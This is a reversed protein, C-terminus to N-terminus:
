RPPLVLPTPKAPTKADKSALPKLLDDLSRTMNAYKFAPVAFVWGDFRKQLEATEHRLKELKAAADKDKDTSALPPEPKAPTAPAAAPQSSEAAAAAPAAPRQAAAFDAVKSTYAAIEAAQLHEIGIKAAGEDLSASFQAYDKGGNEWVKGSVVIGDFTTYRVTRADAPAPMEAAPKVDDFKLQALVAAIANAAFESSLERGKPLDAVLFNSDKEANKYAKLTKGDHTIEASAVRTSPIDVLDRKLWDGTNKDVSITGKALWSQPEDARRVFTGEGAQANPRGIILKYPKPAGEIEVRVGYADKASVDEVGLKKHLEPKATKAELLQADALKLLFERIKAADAGFGAREAVNWGADGRVLTAITKDEAGVLKVSKVENLHDKLGPALPGGAGPSVDGPARAGGIWLAAVLAVLAVGGLKILDNTKM